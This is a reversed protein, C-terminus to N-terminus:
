SLAYKPEVQTLASAVVEATHAGVCATFYDIYDKAQIIQRGMAQLQEFHADTPLSFYRSKDPDQTVVAPLVGQELQRVASIIAQVGGPYLNWVHWFLSREPNVSLKAIELIGGNDIGEDPVYHLTCGIEDLGDLLSHLTGLIGRYAPLIASHLNLIGMPPISLFSGKFLKGFRVSLFLDAGLSRLHRAFSEDMDPAAFCPIGTHLTIQDIPIFNGTNVQPFVAEFPHVAEYYELLQLAPVKRTTNGVGTSYFVACIMDGIRPYLENFALCGALDRSIFLVIKM